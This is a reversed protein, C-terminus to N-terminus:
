TPWLVHSMASFYFRPAATRVEQTVGAGMDANAGASAGSAAASTAAAAAQLRPDRRRPDRSAAATAAIPAPATLPARDASGASGAATGMAPVGARLAAIQAAHDLLFVPVPVPPMSASLSQMPSRRPRAAHGTRRPSGDAASTVALTSGGGQRTRPCAGAVLVCLRAAPLAADSAARVHYRGRHAAAALGVGHHRSRATPARRSGVGAVPAPGRATGSRARERGSVGNPPGCPVRKGRAVPRGRGAQTVAHARSGPRRPLVAIQLHRQCAQLATPSPHSIGVQQPTQVPAAKRGERLALTAQARAGM